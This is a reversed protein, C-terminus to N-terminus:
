GSHAPLIGRFAQAMLDEIRQWDAETNLRLNAFVKLERGRVTLYNIAAAFIASLEAPGDLIPFGAAALTAFVEQSREERVAELAATLPNRHSCEWALLDLTVPRKRLARAYNALLKAAVRPRDAHMLLAPDDGVIEAVSPWFDSRKAYEAMLGDLGGFYRYILVKEVGAHEAVANVGLAAVGGSGLLAALAQFLREETRLRRAHRGDLEPPPTPQSAARSPTPRRRKPSKRTM